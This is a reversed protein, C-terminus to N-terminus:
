ASADLTALRLPRTASLPARSHSAPEEAASPQPHSFAIIRPSAEAGVDWMEAAHASVCVLGSKVRRVASTGYSPVQLVIAWGYITVYQGAEASGYTVSVETGRGIEARLDPDSGARLWVHGNFRGPVTRLPRTRPRADADVLSLTAVPFRDLLTALADVFPQM